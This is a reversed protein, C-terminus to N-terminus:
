SRRENMGEAFLVRSKRKGQLAVRSYAECAFAFLERHCFETDVFRERGRRVPLGYHRPKLYHLLHAAEHVIVDSYPDKPQYASWRVHAFDCAEGDWTLEIDEPKLGYDAFCGWLIRRGTEEAGVYGASLEKDLAAKAGQFNLVFTRSTLERLAIDQWESQV